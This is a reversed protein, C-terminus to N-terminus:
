SARRTRDARLRGHRRRLGHCRVRHEDCRACGSGRHRIGEVRSRSHAPRGHQRFLGDASRAPRDAVLPCSRWVVERSAARVLGRFRITRGRLSMAPVTQMVTAFGDIGPSGSAVPTRRTRKGRYPGPVSSDGIGAGLYRWAILLSDPDGPATPPPLKEGIEIRPGLPSFLTQLTSQLAKADRATRVQAIGYVAFRNWDLTAAADSPYFYRVVGYLRAFAAANDIGPRPGQGSAPMELVAATFLVAIVVQRM